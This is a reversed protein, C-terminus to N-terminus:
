YPPLLRRMVHGMVTLDFLFNRSLVGIFSLPVGKRPQGDAISRALERGLRTM